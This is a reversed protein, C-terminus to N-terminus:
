SSDDGTPIGYVEEHASLSEFRLVNFKKHPFVQPSTPETRLKNGAMETKLVSEEVTAVV